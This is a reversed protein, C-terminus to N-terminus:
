HYPQYENPQPPPPSAFSRLHQQTPPSLYCLVRPPLTRCSVLSLSFLSLLSAYSVLISPVVPLATNKHRSWRPSTFLIIQYHNVLSRADTLKSGLGRTRAILPSSTQPGPHPPAIVRTPLIHRRSKVSNTVALLVPEPVAGSLMPAAAARVAATPLPVPIALLRPPPVRLLPPRASNLIPPSIISIAPVILSLLRNVAPTRTVIRTRRRKNPSASFM